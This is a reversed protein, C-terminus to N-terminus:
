NEHVSISEFIMKDGNRTFRVSFIIAKNAPGAPKYPDDTLKLWETM